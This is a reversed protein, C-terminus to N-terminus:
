WTAPASNSSMTSEEPARVVSVASSGSDDTAPMPPYNIDPVGEPPAASDLLKAVGFDLLKPLLEGAREIVMVNSPKLDRYVIGREHATQVVAAIREFFAVFQGLPMPGHMKLWEALTVGHVREMAMWLLRDHEEIGFAYVHAAYPHDLWSALKAERLFRRVVVDSQRLEGHLVKVVAERGLMPQECCYVAGFGGEGIRDRLVFEGLKRGSLNDGPTREDRSKQKLDWHVLLRKTLRRLQELFERLDVTELGVEQGCVIGQELLKRLREYVKGVPRRTWRDHDVAAKALVELRADLEDWESNFRELMLATTARRESAFQLATLATNVSAVQRNVANFATVISPTSDHALKPTPELCETTPELAREADGHRAEELSRDERM